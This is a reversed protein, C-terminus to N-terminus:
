SFTSVWPSSDMELALLVPPPLPSPHSSPYFVPPLGHSTLSTIISSKQVCCGSCHCFGPRSRAIHSTFTFTVPTVGLTPHWGMPVSPDLYWLEWSLFHDTHYLIFAMLFRLHLRTSDGVPPQVKQRSLVPSFQNKKFELSKICFCNSVLTNLLTVSEWFYIKFWNGKM